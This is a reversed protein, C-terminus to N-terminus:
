FSHQVNIYGNLLINTICQIMKVDIFVIFVFSHKQFTLRYIKQLCSERNNACWLIVRHVNQKGCTYIDKETFKVAVNYDTHLKDYNKNFKVKLGM